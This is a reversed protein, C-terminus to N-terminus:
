ENSVIWTKELCDRLQLKARHILVWYNSSSVNLEKCVEETELGEIYKMAFADRQRDKLRGLCGHLVQKFEDQRVKEDTSWAQPLRDKLWHGREDFFGDDDEEDPTLDGALVEKRKKYYDLIRSRLILFLWNKESIEGRFNEKGKLATVFADQVLDKAVDREPVRQIAYQLLMDGYNEIWSSPSLQHSKMARFIAVFGICRFM